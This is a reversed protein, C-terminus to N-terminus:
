AIAAPRDSLTDPAPAVTSPITAPSGTLSDGGAGGVLNEVDTAVNDRAGIPGDSSSGDDPSDDITVTM